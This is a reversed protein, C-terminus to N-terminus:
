KGKAREAEDREHEASWLSGHKVRRRIMEVAEPCVIEALKMFVANPDPRDFHETRSWHWAEPDRTHLGGGGQSRDHEDYWAGAVGLCARVEELDLKGFDAILRYPLRDVDRKRVLERQRAKLPGAYADREAEIIERM